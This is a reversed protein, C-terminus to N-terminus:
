LSARGVPNPVVLVIPSELKLDVPVDGEEVVFTRVFLQAKEMCLHRWFKLSASERGLEDSMGDVGGLM